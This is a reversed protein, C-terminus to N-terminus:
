GRMIAYHINFLIYHIVYISLSYNAVTQIIRSKFGLEQLRYGLFCIACTTFVMFPLIPNLKIFLMSSYGQMATALVFPLISLRTRELSVLYGAIAWMWGESGYEILGKLLLEEAFFLVWCLLIVELDTRKEFNFKKQFARFLFFNALINIQFDLQCPIRILTILIGLYILKYDKNKSQTYGILFFFCPAAFRGITRAWPEDQLYFFGIHDIM